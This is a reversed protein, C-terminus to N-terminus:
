VQVLNPALIADIHECHRALVYLWRAKRVNDKRVVTLMLFEVARRTGQHAGCTRVAEVFAHVEGPNLPQYHTASPKNILGKMPTAPNVTVQLKLAAYQYFREIIARVNNAKTPTDRM